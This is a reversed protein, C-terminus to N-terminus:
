DRNDKIIKCKRIDFIIDPKRDTNKVFLDYLSIRPRRGQEQQQKVVEKKNMPYESTVFNELGMGYRPLPTPVYKDNLVSYFDKERKKFISM